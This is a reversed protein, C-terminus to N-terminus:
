DTADDNLELHGSVADVFATAKDLVESAVDPSIEEDAIYDVYRRQEEIKNFDRGLQRPLPGAEVFRRCFEGILASHTKPVNTNEKLLMARAAYFMAYYSRNISAAGDGVSLDVKATELARRAKRMEEQIM